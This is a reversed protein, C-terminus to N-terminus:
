QIGRGALDKRVARRLVAREVHRVRRADGIDSDVGSVGIQIRCIARSIRGIQIRSASCLVKRDQLRVQRIHVERDGANSEIIRPMGM